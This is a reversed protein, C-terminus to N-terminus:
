HDANVWTTYVYNNASCSGAIGHDRGRQINLAILDLGESANAELFLFETISKSFFTDVKQAPNYSHGLLLSDVGGQKTNM